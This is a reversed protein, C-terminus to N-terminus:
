QFYLSFKNKSSHIGVINNERTSPDVPSNYNARAYLQLYIGIGRLKRTNYTPQTKILLGAVLYQVGCDSLYKINM